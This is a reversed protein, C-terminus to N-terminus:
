RDRSGESRAADIQRLLRERSLNDVRDLYVKMWRSRGIPDRSKRNYM